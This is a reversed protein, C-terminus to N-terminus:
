LDLKKAPNGIWTGGDKINRLLASGISITNANGITRGQLIACGAGLLNDDGIKVCGSVAVRPNLENFDGLAVEHGLISFPLIKNFNGISVRWSIIVHQFIINGRGISAPFNLQVSPDIINPFFCVTRFKEVILRAISPNAIAIAAAVPADTSLSNLFQEESIVPLFHAADVQIPEQRTEKDVFAVPQFQNGRLILQVTEVAFGSAGFIYISPLM